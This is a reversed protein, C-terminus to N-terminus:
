FVQICLTRIANAITPDDVRDGSNIPLMSYINAPTLRVLGEVKIDQAIFENAAYAQQVAAMASLALPMLLHTHRMGYKELLNIKGDM